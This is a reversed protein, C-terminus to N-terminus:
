PASSGRPSTWAGSACTPRCAPLLPQTIHAHHYQYLIFTRLEPVFHAGGIAPPLKGLVTEGTPTEWRELWYRTNHVRVHLDQVTFPQLGRFRSGPPIDAQPAM